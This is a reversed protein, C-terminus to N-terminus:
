GESVGPNSIVVNMYYSTGYTILPSSNQIILEPQGDNCSSKIQYFFLLLLFCKALKIFSGRSSSCKLPM